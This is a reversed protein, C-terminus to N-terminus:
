DKSSIKDEIEKDIELLAENMIKITVKKYNPFYREYYENQDLLHGRNARLTVEGNDGFIPYLGKLLSNTSRYHKRVTRMWRDKFEHKKNNWKWSEKINKRDFVKLGINSWWIENGTKCSKLLYQNGYSSEGSRDIEVVWSFMWETPRMVAQPAVLDGVCVYEEPLFKYYGSAISGSGFDTSLCFQTITHIISDYARTFGTM